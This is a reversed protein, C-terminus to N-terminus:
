ATLSEAVFDNTAFREVLQMAEAVESSHKSRADALRAAREIPDYPLQPDKSYSGLLPGKVVADIQDADAGLGLFTALSALGVSPSALLDTASFLKVRMPDTQRAISFWLMPAVWSVAVKQPFTLTDFRLEPAQRAVALRLDFSWIRANREFETRDSGDALRMAIWDEAALTLLVARQSPERALFMPLLPAALSTSKVVVRETPAYCRALARSSGEFMARLARRTILKDMERAYYGCTMWALPERKQLNNPLAGLLRSVLTSGCHSIHFIADHPRPEIRATAELVLELPLMVASDNPTLARDDLFAADRYRERSLRVLAARRNPVDFNHLHVDPDQPLADLLSRAQYELDIM